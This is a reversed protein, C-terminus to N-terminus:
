LHIAWRTPNQPFFVKKGVKVSARNRLINLTLCFYFINQIDVARSFSLDSSNQGLFTESQDDCGRVLTGIERFTSLVM